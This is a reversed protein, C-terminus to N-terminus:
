YISYIDVYESMRRDHVHPFFVHFHSALLKYGHQDLFPRLKDGMEQYMVIHSPLRNKYMEQVFSLPSEHFRDAEDLTNNTSPSCDLHRMPVYKDIHLHAYGPAHHCPMLFDVSTVHDANSQLTKMADITGRQHLIGFYIAFLIHPIIVISWLVSTRLKYALKFQQIAKGAYIFCLPLIPYLFRFEKHAFLSYMSCTWLILYLPKLSGPNPWTSNYIRHYLLWIILLGHTLVMVPFGQSFYWHWPQTGYV